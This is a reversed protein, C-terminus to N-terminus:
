ANLVMISRSVSRWCSLGAGERLDFTKAMCSVSRM